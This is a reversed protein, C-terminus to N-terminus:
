GDEDSRCEARSCMRSATWTKIATTEPIRDYTGPMGSKVVYLSPVALLCDQERQWRDYIYHEQYRAVRTLELRIQVVGHGLVQGM